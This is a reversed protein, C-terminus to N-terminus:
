RNLRRGPSLALLPCISCGWRSQFTSVLTPLFCFFLLYWKRRFVSRSTALVGRWTCTYHHSNAAPFFWSQALHLCRYMRQQLFYNSWVIYMVHKYLEGWGSWQPRLVFVTQNLSSGFCFTTLWGETNICSFKPVFQWFLNFISGCSRNKFWFYLSLEETICVILMELRKRKKKNKDTYTQNM